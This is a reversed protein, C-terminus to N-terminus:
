SNSRLYCILGIIAAGLCIHTTYYRIPHMPVTIYSNKSKTIRESYSFDHAAYLNVHSNENGEFHIFFNKVSSSLFLDVWTNHSNFIKVRLKQETLERSYNFNRGNEVQLNWLQTVNANVSQENQSAMIVNSQMLIFVIVFAMRKLMKYSAKL